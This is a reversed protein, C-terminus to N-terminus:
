EFQPVIAGQTLFQNRLVDVVADIDQEDILHKGYPIM